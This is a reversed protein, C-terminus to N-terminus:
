LIRKIIKPSSVKGIACILGIPFAFIITGVYVKATLVLGQLMFPLINLVYEMHNM